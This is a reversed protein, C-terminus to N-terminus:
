IIAKLEGGGVVAVPGRVRRLVEAVELLVAEAQEPVVRERVAQASQKVM